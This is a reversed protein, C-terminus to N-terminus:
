YLNRLLWKIYEENGKKVELQLICPCEYSHLKKVQKALEIFRSKTTKAILVAENSEEVKEKWWYLSTMGDFINVCAALKTEVLVKGIHMAESKDRCTIYVFVISTKM